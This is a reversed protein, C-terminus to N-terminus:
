CKLDHWLVYFQQFSGDLLPFFIFVKAKSRTFPFFYFSELLPDVGLFSFHIFVKLLELLEWSQTSFGEPFFGSPHFIQSDLNCSRKQALVEYKLTPNLNWSLDYIEGMPFWLEHRNYTSVLGRQEVVATETMMDAKSHTLEGRRLPFYSWCSSDSWSYIYYYCAQKQAISVKDIDAIYGCERPAHEGETYHAIMYHNASSYHVMTWNGITVQANEQGRVGQCM